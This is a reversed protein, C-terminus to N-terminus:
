KGAQVRPTIGLIALNRMNAKFALDVVDGLGPVVGALADIAVNGLMAAVQGRSAGLRWGEYVIYLSAAASIADGAAPILGVLPDLGVRVSTGPIVFASDLLVALAAVRRRAGECSEESEHKRLLKKM